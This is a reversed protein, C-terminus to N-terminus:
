LFVSLDNPRVPGGIKVIEDSKYGAKKLPEIVDLELDPVLTRLVVAGVESELAYDGLCAPLLVSPGKEVKVRRVDSNASVIEFRGAIPTILEFRSKNTEAEFRGSIELKELMFHRCAVYVTRLTGEVSYSLGNVDDPQIPNLDVVDLAKEIHLDRFAGMEDVREWDYFRYTLDSNQQVEFLTVGPGISHLRGPYIHYAEGSHVQVTQLADRVQNMEIAEKLAPKDINENVGLILSGGPEANLIFWAETKGPEPRGEWRLVQDDNPHVQVSLYDAAHLYKLLIPLPENFRRKFADGLLDDKWDRRLDALTQGAYPGNQVTCPYKGDGTLWIEGFKFESDAGPLVHPARGRGGWPKELIVPNLILPYLM